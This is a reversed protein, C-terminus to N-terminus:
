PKCKGCLVLGDAHSPADNLAVLKECQVCSPQMITRRNNYIATLLSPSCRCAVAFVQLLRDATVLDHKAVTRIHSIFHLLFTRVELSLSFFLSSLILPSTFAAQFQPLLSGFLPDPLLAVFRKFLAAAVLAAEPMEKLEDALQVRAGSDFRTQLADVGEMSAPGTVYLGPTSAAAAEVFKWTQRVVSPLVVAEKQLRCLSPLPKGFVAGPAM